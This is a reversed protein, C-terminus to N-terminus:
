SCYVILMSCHAFLIPLRTAQTASALQAQVHLTARAAVLSLQQGRKERYLAHLGQETQGDQDWQMHGDLQIGWAGPYASLPWGEYTHQCVALYHNSFLYFTLM